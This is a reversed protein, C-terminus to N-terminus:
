TKIETYLSCKNQKFVMISIITHALYVSIRQIMVGKIDQMLLVWGFSFVTFCFLIVGIVFNVKSSAFFALANIEYKGLLHIISIIAVSFIMIDIGQYKNLRVLQIWYDPSIVYILMGCIIFSLFINRAVKIKQEQMMLKQRNGKYKVTNQSQIDFFGEIITKSLQELTKFISYSGMIYPSFLTSVLISDANNKLYDLDTKLWLYKASKIKAVTSKLDVYTRKILKRIKIFYVILLPISSLGYFYLYVKAGFSFYLGLGIFKVVYNNMTGVLQSFVYGGQSRVILSMANNLASAGGGILFTGLLFTYEGNYKKTNLFFLYGLLFPFLVLFAAIRSLIAQTAYKKVEEDNGHQLWYLAERMMITEIGLDTFTQIVGVIINYIGILSYVEPAMDGAIFYLSVLGLLTGFLQILLIAFSKKFM